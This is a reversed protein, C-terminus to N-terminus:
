GLGLLAVAADVVAVVAEFTAEDELRRGGGRIFEPENWAPAGKGDNFEYESAGWVKGVAGGLVGRSASRVNSSKTVDSSVALELESSSSSWVTVGNGRLCSAKSARSLRASCVARLEMEGYRGVMTRLKESIGSDCVPSYTPSTADAKARAWSAVFRIQPAIDSRMPLFGTKSSPVAKNAPHKLTKPSHVLYQCTTNIWTAIPKSLPLAATTGVQKPSSVSRLLWLLAKVHSGTIYLM